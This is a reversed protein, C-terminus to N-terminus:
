EKAVKCIPIVKIIDESMRKADIDRKAFANERLAIRLMSAKKRSSAEGYEPSSCVNDLATNFQNQTLSPKNTRAFDFLADELRKGQRFTWYGIPRGVDTLQIEGANIRENFRELDEPVDSLLDRYVHERRRDIVIQPANLLADRIYEQQTPFKNQGEKVRCKVPTSGM